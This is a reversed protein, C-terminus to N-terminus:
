MLLIKTKDIDHLRELSVATFAALRPGALTPQLPCELLTDDEGEKEEEKALSETRTALTPAHEIWYYPIIYSKIECGRVLRM